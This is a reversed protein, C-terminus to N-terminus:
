KGPADPHISTQPKASLYNQKLNSASVTHTSVIQLGPNDLPDTNKKHCRKCCVIIIIIAKAIVIIIIITAITNAGDSM